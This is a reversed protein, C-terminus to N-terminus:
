IKQAFSLRDVEKKEKDQHEGLPKIKLEKTALYFHYSLMYVEM